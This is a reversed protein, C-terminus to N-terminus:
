KLCVCVCMCLCQGENSFHDWLLPLYLQFFHDFCSVFSQVAEPELRYFGINERNNMLNVLAQFAQLEEMNLLLVAVLFTMGQVYGM